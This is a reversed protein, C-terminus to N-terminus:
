HPSKSPRNELLRPWLQLWETPYPVACRLPLGGVPHDLELERALLAIGTLSAIKMRSGYAQDGIIPWGRQSLQVRIQHTRGTHLTVSLLSIQEHRSLCSVTLEARKANPHQSGVVTVERGVKALYDQCDLSEGLKLECGTVLCHYTKKVERRKFQEGVRKAAKASLAFILLGSTVKDLQHMPECYGRRGQELRQVYYRKVWSSMADQGSDDAVALLGAPKNAILLHRDEHCIWSHVPKELDNHLM